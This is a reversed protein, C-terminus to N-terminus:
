VFYVASHRYPRPATLQRACMGISFWTEVTTEPQIEIVTMGTLIAAAWYFLYAYKTGIPQVAIAPPPHWGSPTDEGEVVTAIYYRRACVRSHACPRPTTLCSLSSRISHSQTCMPARAHPLLPSSPIAVPATTSPLAPQVPSVAYPRGQSPSVTPSVTRLASQAPSATYLGPQAPSHTVVISIQARPTHTARRHVLPLRHLPRLPAARLLAARRPEHGPQLAHLAHARRLHRSAAVSLPQARPVRGCGGCLVPGRSHSLPTFASTLHLPTHLRFHPPAAHPPPPSASSRPNRLQICLRPM